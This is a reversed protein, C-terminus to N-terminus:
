IKNKKGQTQDFQEELIVNIHLFIIRFTFKRPLNKQNLVEIEYLRVYLFKCRLKFSKLIKLM